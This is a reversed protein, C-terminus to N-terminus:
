NTSESKPGLGYPIKILDQHFDAASAYSRSALTQNVITLKHGTKHIAIWGILLGGVAIWPNISGTEWKVEFDGVFTPKAGITNTFSLAKDEFTFVDNDCKIVKLFIIGEPAALKFNGDETIPTLYSTTADSFHLDCQQSALKGDLMIKMNGYFIGQKSADFTSEDFALPRHHACSTAFLSLALLSTIISKM